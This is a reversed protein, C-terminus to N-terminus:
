ERQVRPCCQGRQHGPTPQTRRAGLAHLDRQHAARQQLGTAARTRTRAAAGEPVVNANVPASTIPARTLSANLITSFLAAHDISAPSLSSGREKHTAQLKPEMLLYFCRDVNACTHQGLRSARPSGAHSRAGPALHSEHPQRSVSRRGMILIASLTLVVIGTETDSMGGCAGLLTRM